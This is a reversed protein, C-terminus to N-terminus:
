GVGGDLFPGIATLVDQFVEDPSGDGNVYLWKGESDGWGFSEFARAVREFFADGEMEIRDLQRGSLRSKRVSETVTLVVVIGPFLGGTAWRQIDMLGPCGRGWGQYAMSSWLSRDSVVTRESALAPRVVQEIHQARDAAFLLAETRAEMTTIMPDHTIERIRRGIYTGGNERTLLAGLHEALLAAQTSKGCGEIGEFAIYKEPTEM